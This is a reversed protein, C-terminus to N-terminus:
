QRSTPFTAQSNFLKAAVDTLQDDTKAACRNCIGTVVACGGDREWDASFPVTILMAMPPTTKFEHDCALCLAPPRKKAIQRLYSNILEAFRLAKLERRLMGILLNPDTSRVIYFEVARSQGVADNFDQMTM